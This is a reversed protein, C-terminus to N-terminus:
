FGSIISRWKRGHQAQIRQRYRAASPSQAPTTSSCRSTPLRVRPTRSRSRILSTLRSETFLGRLSAPDRAGLYIKAAGRKLLERVFARGIGGNAGTVLAVSGKIKM